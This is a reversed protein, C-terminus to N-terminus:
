FKFHQKVSRTWEEEKKEPKLLTCLTMGGVDLGATTAGEQSEEEIHRSGMLCAENWIIDRNYLKFYLTLVTSIEWQEVPVGIIGTWTPMMVEAGGTITGETGTTLLGGTWLLSKIAALSLSFLPGVVVTKTPLMESFAESISIRCSSATLFLSHKGSITHVLWIFFHTCFGIIVNRIRTERIAFSLNPKDAPNDVNEIAQVKM